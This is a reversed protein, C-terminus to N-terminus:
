KSQCPGCWTAYIDLLLPAESPQSLEQELEEGTLDTVEGPVMVGSVSFDASNEMAQILAQVLDEKEVFQAWRIKRKACQERLSKVKMTRLESLKADRDFSKKAPSAVKKERDSDSSSTAAAAATAAAPSPPNERVRQLKKALSEKDFCDSYNVNREKLEAKLESVPMSEIPKMGQDSSASSFLLKRQPFKFGGSSNFAHSAPDIVVGFILLYIFRINREMMDTFSSNLTAQRKKKHFIVRCRSCSQYEYETICLISRGRPILIIVAFVLV